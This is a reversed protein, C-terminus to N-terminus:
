SSRRAKEGDSRTSSPRLTADARITHVKGATSQLPPRPRDTPLELVPLAALREKWYSLQRLWRQEQEAAREWAAYDAYQISLAPLVAPKGAVLADYLASLERVILGTSWDDGIIPHM